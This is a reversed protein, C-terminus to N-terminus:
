NFSGQPLREHIKFCQPDAKFPSGYYAYSLCKLGGNCMKNHECRECGESVRDADRLAALLPSKWYIDGIYEQKLDGVIIPMRRCPLVTGSPMITLLSRGANCRYPVINKEGFKKLTLFNLARHMRIHTRNLWKKEMNRRLLYMREFFCEVENPEMIQNILDKGRGLPLLRDSWVVDVNLRQCLDAVDIFDRDNQKHSTFSVMSTVRNKRLLKLAHLAKVFSGQGRISDHTKEGGDISVQVFRCKLNKLDVVSSKNLLTGNSLIAFSCISRHEYVKKLLDWFGEKCFPEGGSFNIHGKIGWENLLKIFQGLIDTMGSYSLEKGDSNSAQYCHSCRLNCSETVHWQLLFGKPVFRSSGDNYPVRPSVINRQILSQETEIDM